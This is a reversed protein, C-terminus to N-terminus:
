HSQVNYNHRGSWRSRPEREETTCAYDIKLSTMLLKVIYELKAVRYAFVNKSCLWTGAM